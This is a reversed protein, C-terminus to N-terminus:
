LEKYIRCILEGTQQTIPLSTKGEQGNDRREASQETYNQQDASAIIEQAIPIRELPTRDTLLAGAELKRPSHTRFPHSLSLVCLIPVLFM